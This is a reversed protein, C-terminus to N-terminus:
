GAGEARVGPPAHGALKDMRQALAEGEAAVCDARFVEYTFPVVLQRRTHFVYVVVGWLNLAICLALVEPRILSSFLTFMVIQLWFEPKSALIVFALRGPLLCSWIAPMLIGFSLFVLELEFRTVQGEILGNLAVFGLLFCIGAHMKHGVKHTMRVCSNVRDGVTMWPKPQQWFDDFLEYTGIGLYLIAEIWLVIELSPTLPHFETATLM